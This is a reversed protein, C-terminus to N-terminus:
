AQALAPRWVLRFWQQINHTFASWLIEIGVKTLGRVHFQRLRHKDKIWAHPFEAVPGRLQYFAQNQEEQMRAAFAAVDPNPAYVKVTRQGSQPCCQPRHACAQCDVRQAQFRTYHEATAMRSMLKGAPCQLQEGIIKFALPGYEPAIGAAKLATASATAARAAPDFQPGILEVSAARAAAIADATIYGGDVIMRELLDSEQQLRKLAPALQQQDNGEQTAAVDVIFKNKVETTVQINYSPGYGGHSDKMKRAEPDTLSVRAQTQEAKTKGARVKELEVLATQLLTHREEAARKLAARRQASLAATAGPQELQAIVETAREIHERLTKERRFSGASALAKIKTGDLTVQTLDVLNLESLMGLLEAFLGRLAKEHAVRFGSLTRASLTQNGALWRLAPEYKMEEAIAEAEGMGRSYAYVWLAVLLRPDTRPRGAHGEVSKNDELFDADPLQKVLSDIARALHDAPILQELDLLSIVLQARDAKKLRAVAVVATEPAGAAEVPGVGLAMQESTM